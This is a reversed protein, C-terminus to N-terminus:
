PLASGAQSLFSNQKCLLAEVKKIDEPTDVGLSESDVLALRILVGHELAKLQELDEALQLPTEPLKAYQLLFDKQYGYVGIHKYYTQDSKFGGKGHPVLARSFYLANQSSNFVCKVISPNKAEEETKLLMCASAMLPHDKQQLAEIVKAIVNEELLPEDGQINIIWEFEQLSSENQVAEAIRETGNKCDPSTMVAVGGFSVVHEYISADDTAVVLKDLLSCALAREYTRQILTKGLIKVLPKNPLRSSKLRAPIVGLVKKKFDM